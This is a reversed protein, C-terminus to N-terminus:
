TEVDRRTRLWRIRGAVVHHSKGMLTKARSDAVKVRTKHQRPSALLYNIQIVCLLHVRSRHALYGIHCRSVSLSLLPEIRGEIDALTSVLQVVRSRGVHGLVLKVDTWM